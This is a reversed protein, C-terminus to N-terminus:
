GKGHCKKYKKGSGCPCPDNRGVKKTQRKFTRDQQGAQSAEAMPNKQQQGDALKPQPPATMGMGTTDAHSSVLQKDRRREERSKDPEKIQLKYVLNIIEKDVTEVMEQFTRFAERKYIDIPKGMGGHYARLGIGTRLEEMEALHDRWHRDITSLVAYRELQRMIEDGYAAEKQNYFGMVAGLLNEKLKERTLSEIDEPKYELNLLYVQRLDDSLAKLNWEEPYTKDPCHSDILLELVEEILEVVEDKISPRELAALRREYIWKRQVNMVDDYDLTHKRIAFNQAEVKKQAREIARTVMKHAIVEGEEVGLRDMVAGLRDGGFLRMLDDELSLFFKSSGPDGQRGSRGRLQRDIRRSEHRETGVIHLGGADVVGEGLKIDTGRGAMNTAITISGAMGANAVVEAEKQHHKANLVNHAINQRKLLRSLTESVDVTVTGVLVPRGEERKEVIEALIAEYKEKRTRYIEDEMDARVVAVNTPIVMVDLKYIDFLEQAETEATGTMGALKDYMRFYNQLTITALTQSEAEIRVGEKAEISQHLGDSYRRGPLIRGTNEDVIMVKGDQLVYEVDKEYLAYGRLLQNIAHVKESYEGHVRYIDETKKQKDEPTLSEDGDLESLMTSIDPIEFLKQETPSLQATGLDTLAISHEREDIFYYLRDDIEHVKKDRMFASEVETMLKKIGTEKLLKMFRKNKPAGRNAALLNIGAEFEDESKGSDLLEEAKTMMENILTTQKRVIREVTPKMERYRDHGSQEVQGSIILPTRAEDILISDVEDIIAYNYNRHVRDEARQSMNDRLYDFGFENATGFTVDNEYMTRREANTMQNQIVGVTLGLYEYIAGMWDRDRRALYDNVTVVHVGKGELANLYVPLTAVLTKGEGTAMEAIKGEHLAVGGILQVDFHVMNWETDIGAVDWSTGLHRRCAEKVVAFAEPMIEDLTEGEAVRTKFEDTKAKLEDESLDSLKAFHENIELVMPEMKKADRDHKTGFIKTILSKM